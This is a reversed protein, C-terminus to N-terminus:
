RRHTGQIVRIGENKEQIGPDDEPELPQRDECGNCTMFVRLTIEGNYGSFAGTRDYFANLCGAGTCVDKAHVCTAIGIKM